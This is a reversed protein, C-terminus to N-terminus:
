NGTGVMGRQTWVVRERCEEWLRVLFCSLRLSSGPRWRPTASSPTTAPTPERRPEGRRRMAISAKGPPLDPQTAPERSEIPPKRAHNQHFAPDQPPLHPLSLLLRMDRPKQRSFTRSRRQEQPMEQEKQLQKRQPKLKTSPNPIITPASGWEGGTSSIKPLPM